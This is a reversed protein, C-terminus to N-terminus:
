TGVPLQSIKYLKVNVSSTHSIYIQIVQPTHIQAKNGHHLDEHISLKM